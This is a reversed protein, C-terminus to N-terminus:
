PVRRLRDTVRVARASRKAATPPPRRAAAMPRGMRRAMPWKSRMASPRRVSSMSMEPRSSVPCSSPLRAMMCPVRLAMSSSIPLAERAMSSRLRWSSACICATAAWDPSCCALTSPTAAAVSSNLWDTCSTAALAWSVASAARLAWSRTASLLPLIRCLMSAVPRTTSATWPELPVMSASLREMWFIPSMVRTMASIALWVLRRARLAAM